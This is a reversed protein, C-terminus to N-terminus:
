NLQYYVKDSLGHQALMANFSKALTAGSHSQLIQTLTCQIDCAHYRVEPVEVIDLLFSFMQGNHQLHM